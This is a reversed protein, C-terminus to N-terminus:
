LVAFVPSDDWQLMELVKELFYIYSKRQIILVILKILSNIWVFGWEFNFKLIVIMLVIHYSSSFNM